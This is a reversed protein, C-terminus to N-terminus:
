NVVRIPKEEKKIVFCFCWFLVFVLIFATALFIISLWFFITFDKGLNYENLAWVTYPDKSSRVEIPIHNFEYLKGPPVYTYYGPDEDVFCGGDYKV